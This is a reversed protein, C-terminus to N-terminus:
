LNYVVLLGSPSYYVLLCNIIDATSCANRIGNRGRWRMMKRVQQLVLLHPSPDVYQWIDSSSNKRIMIILPQNHNCNQHYMHHHHHSYSISLILNFSNGLFTQANSSNALLTRASNSSNTPHIQLFLVLLTFSSGFNSTKSGEGNRGFCVPFLIMLCGCIICNKVSGEDIKTRLLYSSRSKSKLYMTWAASRRPFTNGSVM